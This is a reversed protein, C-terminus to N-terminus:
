QIPNRNIQFELQIFNLTSLELLVIINNYIYIIDLIIQLVEKM